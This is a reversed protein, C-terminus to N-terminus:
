VVRCSHISKGVEIEISATTFGRPECEENPAHIKLVIADTGLVPWRDLGGGRQAVEGREFDSALGDRLRQNTDGKIIKSGYASNPKNTSMETDGGEM